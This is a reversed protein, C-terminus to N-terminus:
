TSLIGMTYGIGLAINANRSNPCRSFCVQWSIRYTYRISQRAATEDLVLPRDNTADCPAQGDQPGGNSDLIIM